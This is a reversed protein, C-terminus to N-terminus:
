YITEVSDWDIGYKSETEEKWKREVELSGSHVGFVNEDMCDGTMEDIVQFEYFSGEWADTLVDAIEDANEAKGDAVPIGIFGLQSSDWQCVRNGCKNISFVTGSHIYAGLVFAEYKGVGFKRDLKKQFIELDEKLNGTLFDYLEYDEEWINCLSGYDKGKRTWIKCDNKLGAVVDECYWDCGGYIRGTYRPIEYTETVVVRNPNEVGVESVNRTWNWVNVNSNRM